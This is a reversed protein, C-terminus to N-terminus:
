GPFHFLHGHGAMAGAMEQRYVRVRAPVGVEGYDDVGHISMHKRFMLEMEDRDSILMFSGKDWGM